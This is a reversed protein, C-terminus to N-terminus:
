SVTNTRLKEPAAQGGRSGKRAQGAVVFPYCLGIPTNNSNRSQPTMIRARKVLSAAMFFFSPVRVSAWSLDSSFRHSYQSSFGQLSAQGASQEGASKMM